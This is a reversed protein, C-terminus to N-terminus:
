RWPLCASAGGREHMGSALVYNCYNAYQTIIADHASRGRRKGQSILLHLSQLSPDALALGLIPHDLPRPNDQEGILAARVLLDCIMQMGPRRTNRLPPLTETGM